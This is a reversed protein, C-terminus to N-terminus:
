RIKKGERIMADETPAFMRKLIKNETETREESQFIL